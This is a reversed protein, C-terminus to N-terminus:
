QLAHVACGCGSEIIVDQVPEPGIGVQETWVEAELASSRPRGHIEPRQELVAFALADFRQNLPDGEWRVEHNAVGHLGQLVEDVLIGPVLLLHPLTIASVHSLDKRSRMGDEDHVIGGEGLIARMRHADLPLIAPGQALLIVALTGKREM